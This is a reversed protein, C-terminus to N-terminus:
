KMVSYLIHFILLASMAGTGLLYINLSTKIQRNSEFYAVQSDEVVKIRKEHDCVRTNIGDKLEQIANKVSEMGVEFKTELRIIIDHDTTGHEDVLRQAGMATGRLKKATDAAEEKLVRVAELSATSIVKVANAAAQAIEAQPTQDPMNQKLVHHYSSPLIRRFRISRAVCRVSGVECERPEHDV